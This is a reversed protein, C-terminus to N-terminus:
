KSPTVKMRYHKGRPFIITLSCTFYNLAPDEHILKRQPSYDLALILDFANKSFRHLARLIDRLMLDLSVSLSFLFSFNSSLSRFVRAVPLLAIFYEHVIKRFPRCSNRHFLTPIAHVIRGPFRATKNIGLKEGTLERGWTSTRGAGKIEM